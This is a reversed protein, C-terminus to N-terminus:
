EQGSKIVLEVFNFPPAPGVYKLMYREDYKRTLNDVADDFEIERLRDVLFASNLVMKDGIAKNNRIDTCIPRLADIIEETEEAKKADLAEKVTKGLDAKEDISASTGKKLLRDKLNRVAKNSETIEQFIADMDRWIVKLGLEVKNDMSRLLNKFEQYRKMLLNRIEEISTAITCFRFPLVTYDEMVKE